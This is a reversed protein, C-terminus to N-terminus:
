GQYTRPLPPASPVLGFGPVWLRVDSSVAPMGMAVLLVLVEMHRGLQMERGFFLVVHYSLM